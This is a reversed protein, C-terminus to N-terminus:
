PRALTQEEAWIAEETWCSHVCLQWTFDPQPDGEVRLSCRQGQRTHQWPAAGGLDSMTPELRGQIYQGVLLFEVRMDAYNTVSM